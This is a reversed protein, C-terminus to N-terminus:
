LASVRGASAARLALIAPPRSPAPKRARRIGDFFRAGVMFTILLVFPILAFVFAASQVTFSHGYHSSM